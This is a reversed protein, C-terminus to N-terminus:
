DKSIVHAYRRTLYRTLYYYSYAACRYLPNNFKFKKSDNSIWTLQSIFTRLKHKEIYVALLLEHMYGFVRVQNVPYDRPDIKTEIELLIDFVWECYKNFNEWSLIFMNHGIMTNADYFVKKYADFYEPYKIEVLRELLLFDEDRYNMSLVRRISYAYVYPKPLVVDYKSFLVAMEPMDIMDIARQGEAYSVIQIPRSPDQKFNFFRRYSCLGVYDCKEMNKWAWYLGTIESWYRNRGSINQGTDDGLMDLQIGTAQRGCQINLFVPNATDILVDKYYCTLLQLGPKPMNASSEKMKEVILVHSRGPCLM